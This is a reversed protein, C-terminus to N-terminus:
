QLKWILHINETGESFLRWHDIDDNDTREIKM